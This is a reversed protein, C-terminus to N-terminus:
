LCSTEEKFEFLDQFTDLRSQAESSISLTDREWKM